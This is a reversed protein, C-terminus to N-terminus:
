LCVLQEDGLAVLQALSGEQQAHAQEFLSMCQAALEDVASPAAPNEVAEQAAACAHAWLEAAFQQEDVVPCSRLLQRHSGPRQQAPPSSRSELESLAELVAEELVADIETAEPFSGASSSAMAEELAALRSAACSDRGMPTCAESSSPSRRESQHPQQQLPDPSSANPRPTRVQSIARRIGATADHQADEGQQQKSGQSVAEQRQEDAGPDSRRLSRRRADDCAQVPQLAPRQAHPQQAAHQSCHEHLPARAAAHHAEHARASKDCFSRWKTRLADLDRCAAVASCPDLDLLPCNGTAATNGPTTAAQLHDHLQLEHLASM